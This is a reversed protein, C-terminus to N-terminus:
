TRIVKMKIFARTSLLGLFLNRASGLEDRMFHAAGKITSFEGILVNNKYMIVPIGKTRSKM